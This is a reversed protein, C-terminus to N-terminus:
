EDDEEREFPDFGPAYDTDVLFSINDPGAASWTDSIIENDTAGHLTVEGNPRGPVQKVLVYVESM